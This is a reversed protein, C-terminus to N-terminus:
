TQYLLYEFMLAHSTTTSKNVEERMVDLSCHVAEVLGKYRLLISLQLSISM